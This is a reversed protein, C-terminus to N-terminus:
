KQVNTLTKPMLVVCFIKEAASIFYRLNGGKNPVLMRHTNRSDDCIELKM